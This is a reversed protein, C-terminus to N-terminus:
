SAIEKMEDRTIEGYDTAILFEEVKDIDTETTGHVTIWITDEHSYGIRKTGPGSIFFFPAIIERVGDESIVSIKGKMIFNFCPYRHIKGVILSGKPSFMQRAYAGPIFDHKTVHDDINSVFDGASVGADIFKHLAVIHERPVHRDVITTIQGDIVDNM